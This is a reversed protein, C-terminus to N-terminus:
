LRGAAYDAVLRQALPLSAAYGSERSYANDPWISPVEVRVAIEEPNSVGKNALHIAGGAQFGKNGDGQLFARAMGTLDHAAFSHVSGQLVGWYGSSNPTYTDGSEGLNSENLAAFILSVQATTPAKLQNAVDLLSKANATQVANLGAPNGGKQAIAAGTAGAVVGAIAPPATHAAAFGTKLARFGYDLVVAGGLVSAFAVVPSAPM